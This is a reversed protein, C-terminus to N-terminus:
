KSAIVLNKAVRVAEPADAAYGDAGFWEWSVKKGNIANGGVIVKIKNGSPSSKIESVIDRLISRHYPMAISLGVMDAKYEDIAKIIVSGPTNAGLYYTDWGEMELFDTVMRIGIEHLEGGVCAAVFRHGNRESKFFYPYLQSMILQTAASCFHERAVSIQGTLWLRGIEYQSKQFVETYIEKVSTGNTLLETILKTASNRDGKLLFDIYQRTVKGLLASEDIFGPNEALPLSMQEIGASIHEDIVRYLNVPVSERIAELTCNLTAIMVSDPFGLNKFLVKVWAIYDCFISTDGAVVAEALFSLHYGADRVSFARGRAGYKEWFDKQMSYQLDTIRESLAHSKQRIWIDVDERINEM